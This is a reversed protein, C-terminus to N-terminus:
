LRLFHQCHTLRGLAPRGPQCTHRAMGAVSSWPHIEGAPAIAETPKEHRCPYDVSVIAGTSAKVKRSALSMSYNGLLNLDSRLFQLLVLQNHPTIKKTLSTPMEVIESRVEKLQLDKPCLEFVLSDVALRGGLM